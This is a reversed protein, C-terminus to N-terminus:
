LEFGLALNIHTGRYNREAYRTQFGRVEFSVFLPQSPRLLAHVACASNRQRVPRDKLNAADIGCGAGAILIPSIQANLQMWGAMDRLVPGVLASDVPRGFSQGIAGGGLGRLLQGRYFEGRLEMNYPLAIHADAAIARSVQPSRGTARVWGRHTSIAIEGGRGLMEGDTLNGDDQTGWRARVRGQLFPRGSREAADVADTEAGHQANSFPALLAGQVAVRVPLASTSSGLVERTLRIQPLWNWLNGAAAFGPLGVSAVSIPNLDSILPTESGILLETREWRLQARATRLRPEPFLRRDGPGSSVGGSFDLDVDGEFRAGWVSDVGVAAGVRSQRLSMGFTRTGPTGQTSTSSLPALLLQPIDVNNVRKDNAFANLQIRASFTVGIRSRTRTSSRVEEVVQARLLALDSELQTLRAALSDRVVASDRKASDPRTQALLAATAQLTSVAMLALLRLVPQQWFRKM